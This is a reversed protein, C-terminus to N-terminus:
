FISQRKLRENKSRRIGCAYNIISRNSMETEFFKRGIEFLKKKVTPLIKNCFEEDCLNIIKDFNEVSSDVLKNIVDDGDEFEYVWQDSFFRPNSNFEREVNNYFREAIHDLGRYLWEAAPNPKSNFDEIKEFSNGCIGLFYLWEEGFPRFEYHEPQWNEFPHYTNQSESHHMLLPFIMPIIM